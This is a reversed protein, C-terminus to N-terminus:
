ADLRIVRFPGLPEMEERKVRTVKGDPTEVDAHDDDRHGVIGIVRDTDDNYVLDAERVDTWEVPDEDDGPYRCKRVGTRVGAPIADGPELEVMAEEASYLDVFPGDAHDHWADHDAFVQWCSTCLYMASANVTSM